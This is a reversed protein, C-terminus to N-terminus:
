ISTIYPTEVWHQQGDPFVVLCQHGVVQTVTGPYRQGNSWTVMVRSGPAYAYPAAPPQPAPNWAQQPSPLMAHSAPIAPPLPATTQPPLPKTAAPQTALAPFAGLLQTRDAKSSGGPNPSVSAPASPMMQTGGALPTRASALMADVQGGRQADVNSVALPSVRPATSPDGVGAATSGLRHPVSPPPGYDDRVSQAPGATQAFPNVQSIPAAPVYQISPAASAAAARGASSPAGPSRPDGAPTGCATCFKRTGILETGCKACHSM